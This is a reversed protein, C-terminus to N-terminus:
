VCLLSYIFLLKNNGYQVSLIIIITLKQIIYNITYNTRLYVLIINIYAILDQEFLILLSLKNNNQKDQSQVIYFYKNYYGFFYVM